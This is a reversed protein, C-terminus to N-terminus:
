KIVSSKAQWPDRRRADELGYAAPSEGLLKSRIADEILTLAQDLERAQAEAKKARLEAASSKAEASAARSEALNVANEAAETRREALRLKELAARCLTQARSEIERARDQLNGVVEAAQYVLDIASQGDNRVPDIPRKPFALVAGEQEAGDDQDTVQICERLWSPLAVNPCGLFLANRNLISDKRKYPLYVTLCSTSLRETQRFDAEIRHPCVRLEGATFPTGLGPLIAAKHISM